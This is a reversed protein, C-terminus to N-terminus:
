DRQSSAELTWEWEAYPDTASPNVSKQWSRDEDFFRVKSPSAEFSFPANSLSRLEAARFGIRELQEHTRPLEGFEKEYLRVGIAIGTMRYKLENRIFHTGIREYDDVIEPAMRNDFRTLFGNSLNMWEIHIAALDQSMSQLDATPIAELKEFLEFINNAAKGRIGFRHFTPDYVELSDEYKSDTLLALLSAREGSMALKWRDGVPGRERCTELLTLLQEKTLLDREICSRYIDQASGQMRFSVMWPIAYPDASIADVCGLILAADEIAMQTEGVNISAQAHRTLLANISRLRSLYPLLTNHAEFDAIFRHPRDCKVAMSVENRLEDLQPLVAQDDGSIIAAAELTKALEFVKEWRANMETSTRAHYLAELSADDVAGGEASMKAMRAALQARARRERELAVLITVAVTLVCALILGPWFLRLYSGEQSHALRLTENPAPANQTSLRHKM